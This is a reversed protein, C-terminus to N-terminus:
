GAVENNKKPEGAAFPRQSRWDRPAFISGCSQVEQPMDSSAGKLSVIKRHFQRCKTMTTSWHREIFARAPVNTRDRSGSLATETM